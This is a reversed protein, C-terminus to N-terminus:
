KGAMAGDRPIVVKPTEEREGGEKAGSSPKLRLPPLTPEDKVNAGVQGENLLSSWAM